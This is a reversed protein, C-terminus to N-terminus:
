ATLGVPSTVAVQPDILASKQTPELMSRKSVHLIEIGMLRGQGDFDAIVGAQICESREVNGEILELYAADAQPDFEIKM